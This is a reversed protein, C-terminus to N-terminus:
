STNEARSIRAIERIFQLRVVSASREEIGVSDIRCGEACQGEVEAQQLGAEVQLLTLRGNFNHRLHTSLLPKHCCKFHPM